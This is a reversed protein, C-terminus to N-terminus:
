NTEWMDICSGYEDEVCSPYKGYGYWDSIAYHPFPVGPCPYGEIRELTDDKPDFFNITEVQTTKNLWLLRGPGYTKIRSEFTIEMGKEPYCVNIFSSSLGHIVSEGLVADPEGYLDIVQELTLRQYRGVRLKTGYLRNNKFYFTILHQDTKTSLEIYSKDNLGDSLRIDYGELDELKAMAEERSMGM